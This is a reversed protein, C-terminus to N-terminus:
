LDSKKKEIENKKGGFKHLARKLVSACLETKAGIVGFIYFVYARPRRQAVNTWNSSRRTVTSLPNRV